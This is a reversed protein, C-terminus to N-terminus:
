FVPLPSHKWVPFGYLRITQRVLNLPDLAKSQYGYSEGKIGGDLMHSGKPLGFEM